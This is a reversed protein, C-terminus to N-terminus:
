EQKIKNRNVVNCVTLDGGYEASAHFQTFAMNKIFSPM